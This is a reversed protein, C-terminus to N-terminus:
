REEVTEDPSPTPRSERRHARLCARSVFRPGLQRGERRRAEVRAKSLERGFEFAVRWAEAAVGQEMQLSRRTGLARRVEDWAGAECEPVDFVGGSEPVKAVDLLRDVCAHKRLEGSKKLLISKGCRECPGREPAMRTAVIGLSRSCERVGQSKRRLLSSFIALNSSSVLSTGCQVKDQRQRGRAAFTIPLVSRFAQFRAERVM